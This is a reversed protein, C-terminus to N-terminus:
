IDRHTGEQISGLIQNMEEMEPDNQDHDPIKALDLETALTMVFDDIRDIDM